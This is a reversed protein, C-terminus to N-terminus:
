YIVYLLEFLYLCVSMFPIRDKSEIGCSWWWTIWAKCRQITVELDGKSCCRCAVVQLVYALFKSRVVSKLALHFEWYSGYNTYTGLSGVCRGVDFLFIKRSGDTRAVVGVSM